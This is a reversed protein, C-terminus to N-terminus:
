RATFFRKLSLHELILSFIETCLHLSCESSYGNSNEVVELSYSNVSKFIETYYTMDPHRGTTLFLIIM